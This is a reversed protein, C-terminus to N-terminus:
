RERGGDRFGVAAQITTKARCVSRLSSLAAFAKAASASEDQKLVAVPKGRRSIKVVAGNEVEDLLQSLHTKADFAGVEIVKMISAYEWNVLKVVLQNQEIYHGDIDFVADDFPDTKTAIINCNGIHNFVSLISDFPTPYAFIVCAFVIVRM